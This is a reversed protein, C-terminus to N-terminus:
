LRAAEPPHASTSTDDKSSAWAPPVLRAAQRGLQLDHLLRLYWKVCQDKRTYDFNNLIVDHAYKLLQPWSEKPSGKVINRVLVLVVDLIQVDAIIMFNFLLLILQRPDNPDHLTSPPLPQQGSGAKSDAARQQIELIKDTLTKLSLVVLSSTPPLASVIALFGDTFAPFPIYGYYELCVKIYYPVLKMVHPAMANKGYGWPDIFLSKFMQHVGKSVRADEHAVNRDLAVVLSFHSSSRALVPKCPPPGYKFMVPLLHESLLNEPVLPLVPLVAVM